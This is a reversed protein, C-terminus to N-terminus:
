EAEEGPDSQEEVRGDSESKGSGSSAPGQGRRVRIHEAEDTGLLIRLLVRAAAPTLEPPAAPLVVEVEDGSPRGGNRPDDDAVAAEWAM